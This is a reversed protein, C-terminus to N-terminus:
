SALTIFLYYRIFLGRYISQYVHHHTTLSSNHTTLQSHHTTLQSNHTTLSSNHTTLQSHHTILQSNRSFILTIIHTEGTLGINLCVIKLPIATFDGFKKIKVM